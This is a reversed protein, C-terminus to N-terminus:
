EAPEILPAREACELFVALSALCTIAVWIM